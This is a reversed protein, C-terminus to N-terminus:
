QNPRFDGHVNKNLILINNIIAHHINTLGFRFIRNYEKKNRAGYYQAIFLGIGNTLGYILLTFIFFFKNAVSVGSIALAGLSAIMMTDCIQLLNSLLQQIVEPVSITLVSFSLRFLSIPLLFPPLALEYKDEV